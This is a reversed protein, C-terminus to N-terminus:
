IIHHQSNVKYYELFFYHAPSLDFLIPLINIVMSAPYHTCLANMKSNERSKHINSIEWSLFDVCMCVFTTISVKSLASSAEWQECHLHMEKLVKNEQSTHDRSIKGSREQVM